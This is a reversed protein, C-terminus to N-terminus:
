QFHSEGRHADGFAWVCPPVGGVLCVKNTVKVTLLWSCIIIVVFLFLKCPSWVDSMFLSVILLLSLRHQAHSQTPPRGSSLRQGWPLSLGGRLMEPSQIVLSSVQIPDCAREKMLLLVSHRCNWLSKWSKSRPNQRWEQVYARPRPYSTLPLFHGNVWQPPSRLVFTIMCAQRWVWGGPGSEQRQEKWEQNCKEKERGRGVGPM